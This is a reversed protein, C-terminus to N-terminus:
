LKSNDDISLLHQVSHVSVRVRMEMEMPLSSLAPAQVTVAGEPEPGICDFVLGYLCCVRVCMCMCFCIYDHCHHRSHWAWSEPVQNSQRTHLLYM